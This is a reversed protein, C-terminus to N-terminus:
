NQFILSNIKSHKKLLYNSFFFSIKSKPIHLIHFFEKEQTTLQSFPKKQFIKIISSIDGNILLLLYLLIFLKLTKWMKKLTKWFVSWHSKTWDLNSQYVFIIEQHKLYLFISHFSNYPKQFFVLIMYLNYPLVAEWQKSPKEHQKLFLM